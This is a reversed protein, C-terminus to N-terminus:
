RVAAKRPTETAPQPLARGGETRPQPPPARRNKTKEGPRWAPPRMHNHDGGTIPRPTGTRPKRGRGRTITTRVDTLAASYREKGGVPKEQRQYPENKAALCNVSANQNEMQSPTAADNKATRKPVGAAM